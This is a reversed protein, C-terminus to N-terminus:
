KAYGTLTLQFTHQIDAPPQIQLPRFSVASIAFRKHIRRHLVARCPVARCPRRRSNCTSPPELNLFKMQIVFLLKSIKGWFIPRLIWLFSVFNRAANGRNIPNAM